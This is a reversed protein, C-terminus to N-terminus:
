KLKKFFGELINRQKPFALPPLKDIRFFDFSMADDSAIIKPYDKIKALYVLVIVSYLERKSGKNAYIENYTGILKEIRADVSLEERLERALARGPEEGYCVFGGPIGWFGKYPEFKRKTMLFKNKNENLIIGNVVPKPNNYFVFGCSACQYSNETTSSTNQYEQGCHPCHKYM